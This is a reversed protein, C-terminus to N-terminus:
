NTFRLAMMEALGDWMSQYDGLQIWETMPYRLVVEYRDHDPSDYGGLISAPHIHELGDTYEIVFYKGMVGGKPVAFSRRQKEALGKRYYFVVM